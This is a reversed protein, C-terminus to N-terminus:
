RAELAAIAADDAARQADAAIRARAAAEREDAVRQASTWAAGRNHQELQAAHEAAERDERICALQAARLAVRAAELDPAVRRPLPARLAAECERWGGLVTPDIPRRVRPDGAARRAENVEARRAAESAVLQGGAVELADIDALRGIIDVRASELHAALTADDIGDEADLADALAREASLFREEAEGVAVRLSAVKVAGRATQSANANALALRAAELDARRAHYDARLTETSPDTM